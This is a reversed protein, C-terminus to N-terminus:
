KGNKKASAKKPKYESYMGECKGVAQKQTLGEAM